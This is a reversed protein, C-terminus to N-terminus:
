ETVTVQRTTSGIYDETDRVELVITKTGPTTYSHDATKNFRFDLDWTGDNEFDWRTKLVALPDEIDYSESADFHFVDGVRGESPTVTFKAVPKNVRV